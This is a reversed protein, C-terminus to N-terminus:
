AMVCPPGVAVPLGVEYGIVNNINSYRKVHASGTKRAFEAAHRTFDPLKLWLGCVFIGPMPGAHRM